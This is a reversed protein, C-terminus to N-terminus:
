PAADPRDPLHQRIFEGGLRLGEPDIGHGLGPRMVTQVSLGAAELSQAAAESGQSPVVPDAAGHVLLVPPRSNVEEALTESGLLAGSYGVICAVPSPRRLGVHLAMMTGQSFGVLALRDDSLGLRALANDIFADVMPASARVGALLRDGSRDLLSFWQYGTPAMDCPYPANPALFAADPLPVSWHPALAILDAGDAGVGHFLIILRQPPGGARPPHDPGSLDFMKTMDGM